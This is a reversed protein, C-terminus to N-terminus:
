PSPPKNDRPHVGLLQMIQGLNEPDRVMEQMLEVLSMKGWAMARRVLYSSPSHPEVKELIDAAEALLAYAHERTHRQQELSLPELVLIETSSMPAKNKKMKTTDLVQLEMTMGSNNENVDKTVTDDIVDGRETLTQYCFDRIKQGHQYFGNLVGREHSLQTGIFINIAVLIEAMQTLSLALTRYFPAPTGQQFARFAKISLTTSEVLPTSPSRQIVAAQNAMIWDSYTLFKPQTNGVNTVVILNLRDIMKENIWRLPALRYDTDDADLQPYLQPWFQQCLGLIIHLGACLGPVRYQMFLAETLWAAVQLDKSHQTLIELCQKQVQVWDAKKRTRQWIGQPLNDDELRASTINDYTNTHQLFVGCPQSASLPEFIQQWLPAKIFFPPPPLVWSTLATM